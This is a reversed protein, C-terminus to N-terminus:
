KIAGVTEHHKDCYVTNWVQVKGVQTFFGGCQYKTTWTVSKADASYYIWEGKDYKKFLKIGDSDSVQIPVGTTRAICETNNGCDCAALALPLMFALLKM